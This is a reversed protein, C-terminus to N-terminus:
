PQATRDPRLPHTVRPKQAVADLRHHLHSALLLFLALESEDVDPDSPRHARLNRGVRAYGRLLDTCGDHEDRGGITKRDGLEITGKIGLAQNVLQIGDNDVGSLQRLKEATVKWAEEIANDGHGARIRPLAVEAISPHLLATWDPVPSRGTTEIAGFATQPLAPPPIDIEPHARDWYDEVSAVGRFRRVRRDFAFAWDPGESASTRGWHEMRLLEGVRALLERRGAVPLVGAPQVDYVSLRPEPQGVQRRAELTAAQRVLRLFVEVDESAGELSAMAAVTLAVEQDDRIPRSGPGVCYLLGSPMGLLVEEADAEGDLDLYRDLDGFRPWRSEAVLLAYIAEIVKAARRDPPTPLPVASM